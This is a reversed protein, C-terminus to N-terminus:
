PRPEAKENGGLIQAVIERGDQTLNLGIARRDSEGHLREILKKSELADAIGTMNACSVGADLAADSMKCPGDLCKLLVLMATPGIRHRSLLRSHDKLSDLTIPM